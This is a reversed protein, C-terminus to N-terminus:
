NMKICLTYCQTTLPQIWLAAHSKKKPFLAKLYCPLSMSSFSFILGFQKLDSLLITLGSLPVEQCINRLFGEKLQFELWDIDVSYVPYNFSQMKKVTAWFSSEIFYTRSDFFLVNESCLYQPLANPQQSCRHSTLSATIRAQWWKMERIATKKCFGFTNGCVSYSINKKCLTKRESRHKVQGTHRQSLGVTAIVGILGAWLAQTYICRDTIHTVHVCFISIIEFLCCM